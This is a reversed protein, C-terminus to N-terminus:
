DVLSAPIRGVTALGDESFLVLGVIAGDKSSVVAAGLLEPSLRISPDIRWRAGDSQLRSAPLPV